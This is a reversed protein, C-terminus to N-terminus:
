TPPSYAIAAGVFVYIPILIQGSVIVAALGAAWIAITPKPQGIATVHTSFVSTVGLALVGPLMWGPMPVAPEFARGYARRIFPSAPAAALLCPALLILGVERATRVTASWSASRDRALRPFLVIAAASPVLALADALQNAVSFYGLQDRNSFRGLLFLNARLVLFGLLTTLYARAAFHAGQGFMGRDFRLSGPGPRRLRRLLLLVLSIASWAVV